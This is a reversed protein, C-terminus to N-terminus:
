FVLSMFYYNKNSKGRITWSDRIPSHSFRYFSIGENIIKDSDTFTFAVKLVGTKYRNSRTYVPYSVNIGTIKLVISGASVGYQRKKKVSDIKDPYYETMLTMQVKNLLDSDSRRDLSLMWMSLAIFGVIFFVGVIISQVGKMKGEAM